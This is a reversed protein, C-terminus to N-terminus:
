PRFVPITDLACEVKVRSGGELVDNNWVNIWTCGQPLYVEKEREGMRYVPAVLLKGGFMYEDRIHWANSDEPFDYFLPRMVPTGKVHAEEMQKRIYPRLQERIDLYKKCIEYVEGGFSWVENPAGSLCSSGGTTGLRPQKPLRDGHLRM